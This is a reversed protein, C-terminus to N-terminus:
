GTGYYQFPDTYINRAFPKSATPIYQTTGLRAIVEDRDLARLKRRANALATAPSQGVTMGAYLEQMTLAAAPDSTDWLSAIVSRVGALMLASPLSTFENAAHQRPIGTACAALVALDCSPLDMRAVLLAATLLCIGPRPKERPDPRSLEDPQSSQRVVFGSFYANERDFHGHGGFHVTSAKPLARLIASMEGDCCEHPVQAVDANTNRLTGTADPVFLLHALQQASPPRARLFALAGPVPLICIEVDGLRRTLRWWPLAFLETQPSIFVREVTGLEAIQDAVDNVIEDVPSCAAAYEAEAAPVGGQYDAIRLKEQAERERNLASRRDKRSSNVWAIGMRGSPAVCTVVYADMLSMVDVLLEGPRLAAALEHSSLVIPESGDALSLLEDSGCGRLETEAATRKQILEGLVAHQEGAIAEVTIDATRLALIAHRTAPDASDLHPRLSLWRLLNRGRMRQSIDLVHGPDPPIEPAGGRPHYAIASAMAMRDYVRALSAAVVQRTEGSGASRRIQEGIRIAEASDKDFDTKRMQRFMEDALNGLVQFQAMSNGARTAAALAGRWAAEAQYTCDLKSLAAGMANRAEAELTDNNFQVAIKACERAETLAKKPDVDMLSAAYQLRTAASAKSLDIGDFKGSWRAANDMDGLQRAEAAAMELVETGRRVEGANRWTYGIESLAVAAESAHNAAQASERAQEFASIAEDYHGDLRACDGLEILLRYTTTRIGPIDEPLTRRLEVADRLAQVAPALEGRERLLSAQIALVETQLDRNGRGSTKTIAEPALELAEDIRGLTRLVDLRLMAAGAVTTGNGGRTTVASFRTLAASWNELQYLHWGIQLLAGSTTEDSLLDLDLAAQAVDALDGARAADETDLITHILDNLDSLWADVEDLDLSEETRLRADELSIRGSLLDKVASGLGTM